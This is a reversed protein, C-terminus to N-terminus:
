SWCCMGHAPMRTLGRASREVVPPWWAGLQREDPSEPPARILIHHAYATVTGPAPPSVAPLSEACCETQAAPVDASVKISRALM